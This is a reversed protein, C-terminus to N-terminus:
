SASSNQIPTLAIVKNLFDIEVIFNKFFDSGLIGDMKFRKDIPFLLINSDFSHGFVKLTSDFIKCKIDPGLDYDCVKVDEKPSVKNVVFISSSAGSDLIMQYSAISSKVRISIGEKTLKFANSPHSVNSSLDKKDATNILLTKNFYNITISKGKFFDLGIVIQEAGDDVNGKGISAAWPALELGKINSFIACNVKLTSILFEKSEFVEGKINSSKVSNGTYKLESIKHIENLPLHIGDSSGLDLLVNHKVDNISLEIIPLGQPDFTIPISLEQCSPTKAFLKNSFIITFIFIFCARSLM